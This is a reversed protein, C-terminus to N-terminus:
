PLSRANTTDTAFKAPMVCVSSVTERERIYRLATQHRSEGVAHYCSQVSMILEMYASELTAHKAELEAIRENKVDISKARDGLDPRDRLERCRNRLNEANAKWHRVLGELEKKQRDMAEILSKNEVNASRVREPLLGLDHRLEAIADNAGQLMDRQTQNEATLADITAAAQVAWENLRAVDDADYNNLNLEPCATMPQPTTM